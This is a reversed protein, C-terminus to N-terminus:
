LKVKPRLNKKVDFDKLEIEIYMCFSFFCKFIRSPLDSKKANNNQRNDM